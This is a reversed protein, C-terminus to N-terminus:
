VFLLFMNGLTCHSSRVCVRKMKDYGADNFKHCGTALYKFFSFSHMKLGLILIFLLVISYQMNRNVDYSEISM